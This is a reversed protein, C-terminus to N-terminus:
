AATERRKRDLDNLIRCATNAEVETLGILVNVGLEAPQNTLKDWVTWLESPDLIVDFRELSVKM